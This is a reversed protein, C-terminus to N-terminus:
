KRKIKYEFALAGVWPTVYTNNTAPSLEVKFRFDGDIASSTLGNSSLFDVPVGAKAPVWTSGGNNSLFYHIMGEGGEQGEGIKYRGSDEARSIVARSIAGRWDNLRTSVWQVKKQSFGDDHLLYRQKGGIVLVTHPDSEPLARLSSERPFALSAYDIVSTGSIKSLFPKTSGKDSAIWWAGDKSFITPYVALVGDSPGGFARQGFRESYDVVGGHADVQFVRSMYAAYVVLTNGTQPDYGFRLVGSYPSTVTNGLAHIVYEGNTKTITGTINAPIKSISEGIGQNEAVSTVTFEPALSIATSTFDLYATTDLSNDWGTGSFLETFSGNFENDVTPVVSPLTVASVMQVSSTTEAPSFVFLQRQAQFLLFSRILIFGFLLVGGAFLGEGM